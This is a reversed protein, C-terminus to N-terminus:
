AVGLYDPAPYFLTGDRVLVNVLKNVEDLGTFGGPVACNVFVQNITVQGSHNGVFGVVSRLKDRLSVKVEDPVVEGGQIIDFAKYKDILFRSQDDLYKTYSEKGDFGPFGDYLANICSEWQEPTGGAILFADYNVDEVFRYLEAGVLEIQLAKLM